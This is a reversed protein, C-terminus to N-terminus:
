ESQGFSRFPAKGPTLATTRRLLLSLPRSLSIYRQSGNLCNSLVTISNELQTGATHNGLQRETVSSGGSSVLAYTGTMTSSGFGWSWWADAPGSMQVYAQHSAGDLILLLQITNTGAGGTATGWVTNTQTARASRLLGVVLLLCLFRGPLNM